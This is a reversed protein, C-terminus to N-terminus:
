YTEANFPKWTPKRLYYSVMQKDKNMVNAIKSTDANKIKIAQRVFDIRAKVLSTNKRNSLFEEVTIEHEDCIFSRLEKLPTNKNVHFTRKTKFIPNECIKKLIRVEEETFPSSMKSDESDKLKESIM